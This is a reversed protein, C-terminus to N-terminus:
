LIISKLHLKYANSLLRYTNIFSFNTNMNFNPKVVELIYFVLMM